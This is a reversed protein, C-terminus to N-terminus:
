QRGFFGLNKCVGKVHFEGGLYHYFMGDFSFDLKSIVIFPDEREGTEINLAGEGLMFRVSGAHYINTETETTVIFEENEPSYLPVLDNDVDAGTIRCHFSPATTTYFWFALGSLLLIVILMLMKM